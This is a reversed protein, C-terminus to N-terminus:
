TRIILDKVDIPILDPHYIETIAGHQSARGPFEKLITGDKHVIYLSTDETVTYYIEAYYHHSIGHANDTLKTVEGYILEAHNDEKHMVVAILAAVAVTAVVVFIIVFRLNKDM